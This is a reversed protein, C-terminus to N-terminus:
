TCFAQFLMDHMALDPARRHRDVRKIRLWFAESEALARSVFDEPRAKWDRNYRLHHKQHFRETPAFASRVVRFFFVDPPESRRQQRFTHANEAIWEAVDWSFTTAGWNYGFPKPEAIGFGAFYKQRACGALKSRLRDFVLFSSANTVTVYDFPPEGDAGDVGTTERVNRVIHRLLWAVKLMAGAASMGDAVNSVYTYPHKGHPAVAPAKARQRATGLRVCLGPEEEAWRAVRVWRQLFGAYVGHDCSQVLVLLRVAM